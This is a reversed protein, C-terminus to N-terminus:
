GQGPSTVVATPAFKSRTQQPRRSGESRVRPIGPYVRSGTAQQVPAQDPFSTSHIQAVAPNTQGPTGQTDFRFKVTRQEPGAAIAAEVLQPNPNLYLGLLRLNNQNPKTTIRQVDNTQSDQVFIVEEGGDNLWCTLFLNDFPSRRKEPATQLPLIFPNHEWLRSYREVEFGTPIDEGGHVGSALSPAAPTRRGDDAVASVGASLFVATLM